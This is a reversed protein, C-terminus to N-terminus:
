RCVVAAVVGGGVEAAVSLSLRLCGGSRSHRNAPQLDVVLEVRIQESDAETDSGVVRMPVVVLSPCGAHQPEEKEDQGQPQVGERDRRQKAEAAQGATM